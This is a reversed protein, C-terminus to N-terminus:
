KFVLSMSYRSPLWQKSSIQVSNSILSFSSISLNFPRSMPSATIIHRHCVALYPCRTSFTTPLMGLSVTTLSMAMYRSLVQISSSLPMIVCHEIGYMHCESM